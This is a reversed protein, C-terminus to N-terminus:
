KATPIIPTSTFIACCCRRTAATTQPVARMVRESTTDFVPTVNRSPKDKEVEGLVLEGIRLSADPRSIKKMNRAMREM